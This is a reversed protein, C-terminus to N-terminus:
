IPPREKGERGRKGSGDYHTIIEKKRYMRCINQLEFARRQEERTPLCISHSQCDVLGYMYALM